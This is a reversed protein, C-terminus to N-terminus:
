FKKDVIAFYAYVSESCEPDIDRELLTFLRRRGNSSVRNIAAYVARVAKNADKDHEDAVFDGLLYAIRGSGQVCGNKVEERLLEKLAKLTMGHHVPVQIYACAAGQWYSPLCTDIHALDFQM